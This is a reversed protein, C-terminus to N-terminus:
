DEDGPWFDDWAIGTVLMALVGLMGVTLCFALGWSM